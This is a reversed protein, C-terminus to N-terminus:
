LHFGVVFGYVTLLLFVLFAVLIVLVIAIVITAAINNRCLPRQPIDWQSRIDLSHELYKIAVHIPFQIRDFKFMFYNPKYHFTSGVPYAVVIRM